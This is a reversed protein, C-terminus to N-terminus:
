SGMKVCFLTSGGFLSYQLDFPTYTYDADAMSHFEIVPLDENAYNGEGQKQKGYDGEARSWQPNGQAEEKNDEEGAVSQERGQEGPM